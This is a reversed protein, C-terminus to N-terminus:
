KQTDASAALLADKEAKLKDLERDIQKIRIIKCQTKWSVYHGCEGCNAPGNGEGHQCATAPNAGYNYVCPDDIRNM